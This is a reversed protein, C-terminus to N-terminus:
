SSCGFSLVCVIFVLLVYFPARIFVLVIFFMSLYFVSVLGPKPAKYSMRGPFPAPGNKCGRLGCPAVTRLIQGPFLARTNQCVPSFTLMIFTFGTASCCTAYRHGHVHSACFAFSYHMLTPDIMTGREANNLLDILYSLHRRCGRVGYRACYEDM